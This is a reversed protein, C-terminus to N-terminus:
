REDNTTRRQVTTRELAMRLKELALRMRTKATGVPIDISVAIEEYTMQANQRLLFVEQEEARLDRIARQIMALREQRDLDEHPPMQPSAAMNDEPLPRRRRRWATARMDRGVNLAVRFVWARLDEIQGLSERRRWCKVFAEQFADRADEANGTLYYLMGLLESQHRTFTTELPDEPQPTDPYPSQRPLQSPNM